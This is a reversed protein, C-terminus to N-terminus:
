ASDPVSLEVLDEVNAVMKKVQNNDLTISGVSQGNDETPCEWQLPDMEDGFIKTNIIKELAKIFAEIRRKKSSGADSLINQM